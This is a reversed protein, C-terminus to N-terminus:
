ACHARAPDQRGIVAQLAQASVISVHKGDVAIVGDKQLRSLVRSVTELTLGLFSGIEERTMRLVFEAAAFGRATLRESLNLLFAAV